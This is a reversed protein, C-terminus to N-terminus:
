SLLAPPLGEKTVYVLNALTVRVSPPFPGAIRTVLQSGSPPTTWPDEGDESDAFSPRVGIVNGARTAAAVIRDLEQPHMRRVSSLFAWQDHYPEFARDLFVSNGAQRPIGQLPPAILNGFGGKPLTDQNPFLRDYSDLGILHREEIARTLLACGLRRAQAAAVPADFFIWVHGGNGSRSRELAAPAGFMDCSALYAAVDEQWHEKDFDAALFWCTDDHLLPYVGVTVRGSLHNQLVEDTLPLFVGQERDSRSRSAPAYGARGDPNEWRVAYVDERGRFLSKFLGIKEAASSDSNVLQDAASDPLNLQLAM